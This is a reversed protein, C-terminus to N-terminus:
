FYWSTKLSCKQVEHNFFQGISFTNVWESDNAVVAEVLEKWTHWVEMSIVAGAVIDHQRVETNDPM